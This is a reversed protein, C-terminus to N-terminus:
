IRLRGCRTRTKGGNERKKEKAWYMRKNNKEVKGKKLDGVRERTHPKKHAPKKKGSREKSSYKLSKKTM